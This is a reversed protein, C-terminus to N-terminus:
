YQGAGHGLRHNGHADDNGRDAAEFLPRLAFEGGFIALAGFLDSAREAQAVDLDDFNALAAGGVGLPARTSSDMAM